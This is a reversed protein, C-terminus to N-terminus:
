SKDVSKTTISYKRKFLAPSKLHGKDNKWSTRLMAIIAIRIGNFIYKRKRVLHFGRKYLWSPWASMINIIDFDTKNWTKSVQHYDIHVYKIKYKHKVSLL